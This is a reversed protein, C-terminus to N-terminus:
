ASPPASIPHLDWAGAEELAPLCASFARVVEPDFHTGSCRVIEQAAQDVSVAAKYIRASRMADYADIVSFIRANQCIEEGKIGRPYGTGDFKEHHSHIVDAVSAFRPNSRVMDRGVKPHTQMVSWEDETLSGPKLLIADPTAVKGIDHLLTGLALNELDASSLKLERGLVLSLDRVRISHKGTAKERADLMAIMIELTFDHAAVIEASKEEVLCELHFRYRDNEALLRRNENRIKRTEAARGVANLIEKQSFPKILYDIASDMRIAEFATEFSPNGTMLIVPIDPENEHLKNAFEVGSIEPMVVDSVVIDYREERLRKQALKVHDFGEAQYGADELYMLILRLISEDDDLVLVRMKNHQKDNEM